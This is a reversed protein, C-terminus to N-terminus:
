FRVISATPNPVNEVWSKSGVNRAVGVLSHAAM